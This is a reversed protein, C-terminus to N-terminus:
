ENFVAACFQKHMEHALAFAQYKTFGEKRLRKYYDGVESAMDGLPTRELLKQLRATESANIVEVKTKM